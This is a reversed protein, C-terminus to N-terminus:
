LRKTGVGVGGDGNVVWGGPVGYTWLTSTVGGTSQGPRNAPPTGDDVFTMQPTTNTACPDLDSSVVRIKSFDGVTQSNGDETRDVGTWGQFDPGGAATQFTGEGSGPGGYLRFSDLGARALAQAGTGQVTRTQISTFRSPVAGAYRTARAEDSSATARAPRADHAALAALSLSFVAVRVLTRTPSKSM